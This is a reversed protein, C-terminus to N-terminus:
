RLWKWKKRVLYEVAKVGWAIDREVLYLGTNCFNCLVGRVEDTNHDHDIRLELPYECIECGNSADRLAQAEDYTLGHYPSKKSNREAAQCRWRLKGKSQRLVLATHPGCEECTGNGYPLVGDQVVSVVDIRHM